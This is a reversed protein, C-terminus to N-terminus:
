SKSCIKEVLFDLAKKLGDPAIGHGTGVSLHKKVDFNLKALEDFAEPLCHPSVVQDEDGHILLIPPRSQIRKKFVDLNILKGSFGVIGGIVKGRQPGMYLSLMTGQSFSVLFVNEPDLEENSILNDIWDNVFVSIKDLEEMALDDPSGDMSPIPFWQFGFNSIKCRTPADPAVFLTDPLHDALVNGISLLDAGDAGYGHMFIVLSKTKNSKPNLKKFNMKM